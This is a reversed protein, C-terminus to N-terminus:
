LCNKTSPSDDADVQQQGAGQEDVVVPGGALEGLPDAEAREADARALAESVSRPPSALEDEGSEDRGV